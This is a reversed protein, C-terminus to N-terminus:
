PQQWFSPHLPPYRSFAEFDCGRVGIDCQAARRSSLTASGLSRICCGLARGICSLSSSTALIAKIIGRGVRLAYLFCM